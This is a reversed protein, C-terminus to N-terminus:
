PHEPRGAYMKDPFKVPLLLPVNFGRGKPVSSSVDGTAVRPSHAARYPRAYLGGRRRGLYFRNLLFSSLVPNEGQLQVTVCFGIEGDGLV